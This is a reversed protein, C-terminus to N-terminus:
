SRIMYTTMLDVTSDERSWDRRERAWRENYVDKVYSRLYNRARMESELVFARGRIVYFIGMYTDSKGMPQCLSSLNEM